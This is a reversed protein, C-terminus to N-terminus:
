HILTCVKTPSVYIKWLKWFTLQSSFFREALLRRSGTRSSSSSCLVHLITCIPSFVKMSSLSIGNWLGLSWIKRTLMGGRWSICWIESMCSGRVWNFHTMIICSDCKLVNGNWFQELPRCVGEGRRRKLLWTQAARRVSTDDEKDIESWASM